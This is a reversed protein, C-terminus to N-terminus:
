QTAALSVNWAITGTPVDIRVVQYDNGGAEPGFLYLADGFLPQGAPQGLTALVPVALTWVQAGGADTREVSVPASTVRLEGGDSLLWPGDGNAPEVCPGAASGVETCHWVKTAQQLVKGAADLHVDYGVFEGGTENLQRDTYHGYGVSAGGELNRSM